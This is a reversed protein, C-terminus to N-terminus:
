AKRRPWLLFLVGLGVLALAATDWPAGEPYCPRRLLVECVGRALVAATVGAARAVLVMGLQLTLGVLIAMVLPVAPVGHLLAGLGAGALAAGWWGVLPALLGPLAGRLLPEEVLAPLAAEGMLHLPSPHQPVAGTFPIWGGLSAVVSPAQLLVVALAVGAAPGWRPHAICPSIWLPAVWVAAAASLVLLALVHVPVDAVVGLAAVLAGVAGGALPSLRFNYAWGEAGRVLVAVLLIALGVFAPVRM